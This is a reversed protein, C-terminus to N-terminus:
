GKLCRVSEDFLAAGLELAKRLRSVRFVEPYGGAGDGKTRDGQHIGDAGFHFFTVEAAASPNIGPIALQAKRM